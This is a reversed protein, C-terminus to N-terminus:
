LFEYAPDLLGVIQSFRINPFADAQARDANAQAISEAKKETRIVLERISHSNNIVTQWGTEVANRSAIMQLYDDAIGSWWRAHAAARAEVFASWDSDLVDDIQDAATVHASEQSSWFNVDAQATSMRENNAAGTEATWYIEEANAFAADVAEQYGASTVPAAIQCNAAM